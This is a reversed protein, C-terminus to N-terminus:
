PFPLMEGSAQDIPRQADVRRMWSRLQEQMHSATESREEILNRQEGLDHGLDFLEWEAEQYWYLIKWDGNRLATFPGYRDGSPGWKHPYHWVLSREPLPIGSELLPGLDLGAAEVQSLRVQSVGALGAFTTYLDATHIPTADLSGPPLAWTRPVPRRDSSSTDGVLDHAWALVFPVRIGGEYGSAKGSRLPANHTDKGSGSPTTGRGHASLGGNDSTFVILTDRALDLDELKQLLRGLSDDVGEIMSAYAAEKPDLGAELYADVFRPDAQIPTHVAYHAFDLFFPRGDAAAEELALEMELTLAETLYIDQGHYAELGPVGWPGDGGAGFDDKGFYSAPAGAAHGAINRDFGLQLPDAGATGIAGFHAKGLFISRYGQERLLEPLLDKGPNLGARRWPPDALPPMPRAFDRDVHLTWDTIRTLAPELGSLLAARTPTCVSGSAYADSFRIGAAALRELHPTRYRAQFPTPEDTFAVSTDQWGLADVLILVLNPPELPHGGPAVAHCGLLLAYPLLLLRGRM